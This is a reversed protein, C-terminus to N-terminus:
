TYSAMTERIWDVYYSTKTFVDPYAPNGCQLSESVIGISQVSGDSGCILPGGEDGLCTTGTGVEPLGACFITGNTDLILETGTGAYARHCEEDAIIPIDAKHLKSKPFGDKNTLGWGTVTCLTGPDTEQGQEPLALPQVWETWRLSEKLHILCINNMQTTPDYNPHMITQAADRRQEEEEETIFLEIGGAVVHIVWTFQNLCCAASTLIWKKDIISGGCFHSYGIGALNRISVQWPFEGDKADKGGVIRGIGINERFDLANALVVGASLLIVIRM